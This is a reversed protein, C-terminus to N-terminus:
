GIKQMIRGRTPDHQRSSWKWGTARCGAPRFETEGSGVAIRWFRDSREGVGGRFMASPLEEVVM